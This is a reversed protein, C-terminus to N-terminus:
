HTKGWSLSYGLLGNLTYFHYTNKPPPPPLSLLPLSFFSSRKISKAFDLISTLLQKEAEKVLLWM